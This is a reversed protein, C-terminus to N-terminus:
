TTRLTSSGSAGRLFRFRFLPHFPDACRRGNGAWRSGCGKFRLRPTPPTTVVVAQLGYGSRRLRAHTRIWALRKKSFPVGFYRSRPRLLTWFGALFWRFIMLFWQNEHFFWWFDNIKMFFWWFDNIKMSFIDFDNIKMFIKTLFWIQRSFKLKCVPTDFKELWNEDFFWWFDNIKMSFVHFIM